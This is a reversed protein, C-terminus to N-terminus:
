VIIAGNDTNGSIICEQLNENSTEHIDQEHIMPTINNIKHKLYLSKINGHVPESMQRYRKNKLIDIDVSTIDTGEDNNECANNEFALSHYSHLYGDIDTGCCGSKNTSSSTSIADHESFIRKRFMNEEDIEEYNNVENFEFQSEPIENPSQPTPVTLGPLEHLRKSIALIKMWFIYLLCLFFGIIFIVSGGLICYIATNSLIEKSDKNVDHEHDITEIDRITVPKSLPETKRLTEKTVDETNETSTIQYLDYSNKTDLTM